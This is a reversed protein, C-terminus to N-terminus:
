SRQWPMLVTLMTGSGVTSSISCSGGMEDLRQQINKLGYSGSGDTAQQEFGCGNDSINVALQQGECNFNLRIETAGAHKRVNTFSEQIIRLLHLEAEPKLWVQPTVAPLSAKVEIGSMARFRDLWEQLKSFFDWDQAAISLGTISERADSFADDAASILQELQRGADEPRGRQLLMRIAQTQTKVYGPFQGQTDHLERGLRNRETLTSLAKEQEMLRAQDQKQRTIEKLLLVKGIVRGATPVLPTMEVIFYRIGEPYQRSVERHLEDSSDVLRILEPWDALLRNFPKGLWSTTDQFLSRATENMEVLYGQDDIVMLGDNMNKSITEHALPLITYIRWRYLLWTTYIGSLLLGIMMPVFPPFIHLRNLAHTVFVFLPVITIYLAQRRRFGKLVFIWWLSVLMGIITILYNYLFTLGGVKGWTYTLTQGTISYSRWYWGPQMFYEYGLSLMLLCLLLTVGYRALRSLIGNMQYFRIVFLFWMAPPWSVAASAIYAWLLREQDTKSFTFMLSSTLWVVKSIQNLCLPIAGPSRRLQYLIVSLITLVLIGVFYAIPVEVPAYITFRTM